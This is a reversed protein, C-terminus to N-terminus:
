FNQFVNLTNLSQSKEWCRSSEIHYGVKTFEEYKWNWPSKIFITDDVYASPLIKQIKPISFSLNNNTLTMSKMKTQIKTISQLMKM